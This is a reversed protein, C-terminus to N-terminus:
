VRLVLPLVPEGPSADIVVPAVIASVEATQPLVVFEASATALILGTHPRELSVTDVSGLACDSQSTTDHSNPQSSKESRFLM